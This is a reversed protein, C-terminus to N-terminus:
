RAFVHRGIQKEIARTWIWKSTSTIPNWYYLAGGTPDYGALAMEAAKVAKSDPELWIQGDDVADFAGPEFVVGNITDPFQGSKARNVIVAAVAVQGDFKEGRAEGHVARALMTIDERSVGRSVLIQSRSPVGNKNRGKLAEATYRNNTGTAYTALMTILITGILFCHILRGQKQM